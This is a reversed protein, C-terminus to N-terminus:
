KKVKYGAPCKPKVATVKKTLKGKVCTITTKKVAAGKAEAEQKAKLEAAAKAEADQKAKLEAAAKAEAEQKAKLEAAVKADAEQKAKLEAAAKAEAEQKAKLEAAAKADAALRDSAAKDISNQLFLIRAANGELSKLISGYTRSCNNWLGVSQLYISRTMKELSADNSKILSSTARANCTSIRSNAATIKGDIVSTAALTNVVTRVGTAAAMSAARDLEELIGSIVQNANEAAADAANVAAERADNLDAAAVREAEAAALELKSVVKIEKKFIFDKITSRYLTANASTLSCTGPKKFEIVTSWEVIPQFWPFAPEQSIFCVDGPWPQYFVPVGESTRTPLKIEFSKGQELVVESPLFDLNFTTDIRNGLVEGPPIWLGDLVSFKFLDNGLTYSSELDTLDAIRAALRVENVGKICNASVYKYMLVETTTIPGIPLGYNSPKDGWLSSWSNGILCHEFYQGQIFNYAWLDVRKLGPNGGSYKISFTVVDGVKYIKEVNLM